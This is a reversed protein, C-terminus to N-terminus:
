LQFQGDVATLPNIYMVLIPKIPDGKVDNKGADESIEYVTLMENLVEHAVKQVEPRVPYVATVLRIDKIEGTYGGAGAVSTNINVAAERIATGVSGAFGSFVVIEGANNKATIYAIYNNM